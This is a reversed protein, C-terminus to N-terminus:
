ARHQLKSSMPLCALPRENRSLRYARGHPRDRVFPEAGASGNNSAPSIVAATFGDGHDGGCVHDLNGREDPISRTGGNKGCQHAALGQGTALQCIEGM